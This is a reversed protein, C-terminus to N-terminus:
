CSLCNCIVNLCSMNLQLCTNVDWKFVSWDYFAYPTHKNNKLTTDRVVMCCKFQMLCFCCFFFFFFFVCVINANINRLCMHGQFLILAMLCKSLGWVLGMWACKSLGQEFLMQYYYITIKKGFWFVCWNDGKFVIHFLFSFSFSFFSLDVLLVVM